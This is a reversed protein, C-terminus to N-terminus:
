HSNRRYLSGGRERGGEGVAIGVCHNGDEGLGGGRSGCVEGLRDGGLDGIKGLDTM